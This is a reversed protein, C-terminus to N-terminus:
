ALEQGFKASYLLTLFTEEELSRELADTEARRLLVSDDWPSRTNFRALPVTNTLVGIM